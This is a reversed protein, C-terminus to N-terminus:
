SGREKLFSERELRSSALYDLIALFDCPAM